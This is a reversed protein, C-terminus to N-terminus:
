HRAEPKEKSLLTFGESPTQQLQATVRFPQHSKSPRMLKLKLSFTSVQLKESNCKAMRKTCDNLPSFLSKLLIDVSRLQIFLPHCKGRNTSFFHWASTRGFTQKHLELVGLESCSPKTFLQTSYPILESFISLDATNHGELLSGDTLERLKIDRTCLILARILRM